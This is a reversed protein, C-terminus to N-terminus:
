VTVEERVESTPGKGDEISSSATETSPFSNKSDKKDNRRGRRRRKAPKVSYFGYLDIDCLKGNYTGAFKMRGEFKFGLPKLINSYANVCSPCAFTLRKLDYERVVSILEDKLEKVDYKGELIGLEYLIGSSGKNINTVMLLAEPVCYFQTLGNDFFSNYLMDPDKAEDVRADGTEIWWNMLKKALDLNM